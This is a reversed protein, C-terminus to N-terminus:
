TLWHHPQLAANTTAPAGPRRIATRLSVTFSGHAAADIPQLLRRPRRRREALRHLAQEGAAGIGQDDDGRGARDPHHEDGGGPQRGQEDANVAELRALDAAPQRQAGAEAPAKAAEEAAGEGVHELLARGQGLDVDRGDCRQQGERGQEDRHQRAVRAAASSPM